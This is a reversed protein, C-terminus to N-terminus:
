FDYLRNKLIKVIARIRRRVYHNINYKKTFSHSYLVGPHTVRVSNVWSQVSTYINLLRAIPQYWCYRVNYSIPFIIISFKIILWFLFWQVCNLYSPPFWRPLPTNFILLAIKQLKRHTKFFYLDSGYFCRSGIYKKVKNVRPIFKWIDATM